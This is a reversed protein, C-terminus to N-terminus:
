ADPSRAGPSWRRIGARCILSHFVSYAGQTRGAMINARETRLLFDLRHALRDFTEIRVHYERQQLLKM